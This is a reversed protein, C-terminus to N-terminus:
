KRVLVNETIRIVQNISVCRESSLSIDGSSATMQSFCDRMDKWKGVDALLGM